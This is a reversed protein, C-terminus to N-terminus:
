QRKLIVGDDSIAYAASVDAQIPQIGCREDERPNFYIFTMKEGRRVWVDFTDLRYMCRTLEDANRPPRRWLPRFDEIAIQLARLQPGEITTTAQADWAPFQITAAVEPPALPAKPPSHACGTLIALLAVLSVSTLRHRAPM